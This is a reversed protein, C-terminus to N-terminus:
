VGEGYRWLWVGLLRGRRARRLHALDVAVRRCEIIARLCKPARRNVAAKVTSDVDNVSRLRAGRIAPECHACTPAECFQSQQQRAYVAVMCYSIAPSLKLVIRMLVRNKAPRIM